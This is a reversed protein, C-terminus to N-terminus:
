SVPRHGAHQLIALALEHEHFRTETLKDLEHMTEHLSIVELAPDCTVRAM